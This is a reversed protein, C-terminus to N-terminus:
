NFLSEFSVTFCTNIGPIVSSFLACFLLDGILSGSSVEVSKYASSFNFHLM